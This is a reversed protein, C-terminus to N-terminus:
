EESSATFTPVGNAFTVTGKVRNGAFKINYPINVGGQPGGYSQPKVIVDETWADYAGTTKDVLVELCTTKCDDGTLRNMAIDKLKDYVADGPNAYYTGIDLEPEYGNDAVNTEDLINKTSSIDPNLAVSADDTDKGNLFWKPTGSGGFAADIYHLLHSRHLKGKEYAYEPM